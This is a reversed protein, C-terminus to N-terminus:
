YARTLYFRDVIAELMADRGRTVEDVVFSAGEDSFGREVLSRMIRAGVGNMVSSIEGTLEHVEASEDLDVKNLEAAVEQAANLHNFEALVEGSSSDVVEFVTRDEVERAYFRRGPRTQVRRRRERELLVLRRLVDEAGVADGAHELRLLTNHLTDEVISLDSLPMTTLDQGALEDLRNM